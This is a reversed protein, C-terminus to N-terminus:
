QSHKMIWYVDRKLERTNARIGYPERLVEQIYELTKASTPRQRLTDPLAGWIRDKITERRRFAGREQSRDTKNKKRARRQRFWDKIIAREEEWSLSLISEPRKANTLLVRESANSMCKKYELFREFNKDLLNREDESMAESPPMEGLSGRKNEPGYAM